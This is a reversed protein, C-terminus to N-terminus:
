IFTFLEADRNLIIWAMKENHTVGGMEFYQRVNLYLFFCCSWYYNIIFVESVHRLDISVTDALKSNHKGDLFQRM